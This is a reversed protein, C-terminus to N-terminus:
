CEAARRGVLRTWGDPSKTNTLEHTNKRNIMLSYHTPTVFTSSHPAPALYKLEIKMLVGKRSDKDLYSVRAKSRNPNVERAFNKQRNM